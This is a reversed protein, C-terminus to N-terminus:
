APSGDSERLAESRAPQMLDEDKVIHATRLEPIGAQRMGLVEGPGRLELDKRALTFGDNTECLAILRERWEDGEGETPYAVLICYAEDTGRGIRGRLQHLQALGFREAHEIVIVTANAVDVGVEIVTTSVLVDVEGAAFRAMVDVKEETPLRGHLLEVRCDALWGTRLEEFGSQASTLDIKESDEILPYVVYAQRGARVQDAVFGFIGQRREPDRLATRIPQRGPPLEDIVSVSLDGYLTLALSRPIPTATMILLDIAAGKASLRARQAVGFRHQEDVIALGLRAFEVDAEILAHTGVVLRTAGSALGNRLERKLATRAGGKFLVVDEMGIGSALRRVTHFHQEALIETPVMIAAQFGHEVVRLAACLAVLTKGSGVDGHLLRRMPLRAALDAGIEDICRSQAATLEFSLSGLLRPM